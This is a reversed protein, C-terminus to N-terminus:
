LFDTLNFEIPYRREEILVDPLVRSCGLGCGRVVQDLGRLAGNVPIILIKLVV